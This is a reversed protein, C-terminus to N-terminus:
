PYNSLLFPVSAWFVLQQSHPNILSDDLLGVPLSLVDCSSTGPPALAEPRCGEAETSQAGGAKETSPNSNDPLSSGSARVSSLTRYHSDKNISENQALCFGVLESPYNLGM